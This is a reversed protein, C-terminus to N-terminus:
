LLSKINKTVTLEKVDAKLKVIQKQLDKVTASLHDIKDLKLKKSSVYKDFSHIHKNVKEKIVEEILMISVPYKPKVATDYSGYYSHEITSNNVM